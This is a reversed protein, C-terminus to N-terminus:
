RRGPRAHGLDGALVLQPEVHVAGVAAGAQERRAHPGAVVPM